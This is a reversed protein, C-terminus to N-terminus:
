FQCLCSILLLHFTKPNSLKSLNFVNLSFVFMEFSFLYKVSTLVGSGKDLSKEISRMPNSLCLEGRVIIFINKCM